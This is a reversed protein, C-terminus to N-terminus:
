YSCSLARSAALKEILSDIAEFNIDDHAFHQHKESNIHHALCEYKVRCNECYGSGLRTDNRRLDQQQKLEKQKQKDADDGTRPSACAPKPGAAAHPEAASGTSTNAFKKDVVLRNLSKMNKNM